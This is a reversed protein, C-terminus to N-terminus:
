MWNAPSMWYNDLSTDKANEPCKTNKYYATNEKFKELLTLIEETPNPNAAFFKDLIEEENSGSDIYEAVLKEIESNLSAAMTAIEAAEVEEVVNKSEKLSQFV